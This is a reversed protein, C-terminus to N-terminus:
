RSQRQPTRPGRALAFHHERDAARLAQLIGHSHAYDARREPLGIGFVWSHEDLRIGGDIRAIAAPRQHIHIAVQYSDVGHNEGLSAAPFSNAKGDGSIDYPKLVGAQTLGSM